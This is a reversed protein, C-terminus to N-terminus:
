GVIGIAQLDDIISNVAQTTDDSDVKLANVQAALDAIADRLAPIVNAVLDDRLTDADAPTDAPDPIAAITTNASGGSNDTLTQATRAAVTKNATAYTQTYGSAQAVGTIGYFGVLDTIANGIDVDGDLDTKGSVVLSSFSGAGSTVSPLSIDAIGGNETVSFGVGQNFRILYTIFPPTTTEDVTAVEVGDEEAPVVSSVTNYVQANTPSPSAVIRGEIDVLRRYIDDLTADLGPINNATRLYRSM